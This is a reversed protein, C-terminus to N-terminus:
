VGEMKGVGEVDKKELRRDAAIGRVAGSGPGGTEKLSEPFERQMNRKWRTFGLNIHTSRRAFWAGHRDHGSMKYVSIGLPNDKQNVKVPKGWGSQLDAHRADIENDPYPSALTDEPSRATNAKQPLEPPSGSASPSPVSNILTEADKLVDKMFGELNDTPVDKYDIHSLTPFASKLDSKGM